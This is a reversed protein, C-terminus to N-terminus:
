VFARYSKVAIKPESVAPPIIANIIPESIRNLPPVKNPIFGTGIANATTITAKRTKTIVL